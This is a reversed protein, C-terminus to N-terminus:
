GEAAELSSTERDDGHQARSRGPRRGEMGEGAHAQARKLQNNQKDAKQRRWAVLRATMATNLEAEVQVDGRWGRGPMLRRERPPAILKVTELVATAFAAEVDVSSGSPPPSWGSTTKSTSEM